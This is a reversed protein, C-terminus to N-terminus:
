ADRPSPSTYLLCFTDQEQAKARGCAIASVALLLAMMGALIKTGNMNAKRRCDM